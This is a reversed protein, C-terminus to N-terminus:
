HLFETVGNLVVDVIQYYWEERASFAGHSSGLYIFIMLIAVLLMVINGLYLFYTVVGILMCLIVLWAWIKSLFFRLPRTPRMKYYLPQSLERGLLRQLSKKRSFYLCQLILFAMVAGLALLMCKTLMSFETNFRGFIDIKNVRLWTSLFVSLGGVLSTPIIFKSSKSYNEKMRLYEEITIPYFKHYTVWNLPFFLHGLINRPRIDFLYYHGDVTFVSFKWCLKISYQYDYRKTVVNNEKWSNM